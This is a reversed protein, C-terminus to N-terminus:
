SVQGLETGLTEIQEMHGERGREGEREGEVGARM